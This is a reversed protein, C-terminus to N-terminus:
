KGFIVNSKIEKWMKETEEDSDIDKEKNKNKHNNIQKSLEKAQEKKLNKNEMIGKITKNKKSKELENEIKQYKNIFFEDKTTPHKIIAYIYSISFPNTFPINNIKAIWKINCLNFPNIVSQIYRNLENIILSIKQEYAQVYKNEKCLVLSDARLMTSKFIMYLIKDGIVSVDLYDEKDIETLISEPLYFSIFKPENLLTSLVALLLYDQIHLLQMNRRADIFDIIQISMPSLYYTYNNITIKDDKPSLQITYNVKNITTSFNFQTFLGYNRLKFARNNVQNIQEEEEYSNINIVENFSDHLPLNERM